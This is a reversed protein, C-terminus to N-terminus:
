RTGALRFSETQMAEALKDRGFVMFLGELQSEHEDMARMKLELIDPPLDFVLDLDARSVVVPTGPGFIEFEDLRSVWEDAWERSHTAYYLKAGSPASTNFAETAWDCVSKHAEHGTMGEPGFTVITDPQLQEVLERVRQRGDPEPLATDMGVDPLDLFYHETVGLHALSAMLERERVAGLETPPWRQEDMSGGEGRTATVCVVRSGDRAAQAMLGSSLYAEDDPHAWVGLLTGLEM